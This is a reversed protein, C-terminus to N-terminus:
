TKIWLDRDGVRRRFNGILLSDNAALLLQFNGKGRIQTAKSLDIGFHGLMKRRHHSLKLFIAGADFLGAWIKGMKLAAIVRQTSKHPGCCCFTEGWLDLCM